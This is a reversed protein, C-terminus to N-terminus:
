RHRLEDDVGGRRVSSLNRKRPLFDEGDAAVRRVIQDKGVGHDRAAVRHDLLPAGLEEQAIAARGVPRHHVAVPDALSAEPVAVEHGDTAHPQEEALLRRLRPRLDHGM